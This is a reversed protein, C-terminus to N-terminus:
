AAGPLVCEAAVRDIVEPGLVELGRVAGAVLALSALRDLGQPVGLTLAHLRAVARPTFLPDSRGAAALKALLYSEAEARTLPSLRIALRWPDAPEADPRPRGVRLVTVRAQPHPDLYVLRQLEAPDAVAHCDDVALVVRLSQLRCLRVAETLSRWTLARSTGPDSRAGLGEALAGLLGLGDSAATAKAIRRSPDRSANLAQDLVTTKGLGAPAELVALREGSDIVHRLRAIAEVHVPTPVFSGEAGPEFPNRSLTWYREVM